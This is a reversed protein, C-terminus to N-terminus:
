NWHGLAPCDWQSKRIRLEKSPRGAAIGAPPFLATRAALTQVYDAFASSTPFARNIWGIREATAGDIDQASLVYKSVLGVEALKTRLTCSAM